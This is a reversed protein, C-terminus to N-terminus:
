GSTGDERWHTGDERWHGADPDSWRIRRRHVRQRLTGRKAPEGPKGFGWERLRWEDWVCAGLQVKQGAQLPGDGEPDLFRFWWDDDEVAYGPAVVSRLPRVHGAYEPERPPGAAYEYLPNWYGPVERVESYFLWSQFDNARYLPLLSDVPPAPDRLVHDHLAALGRSLLQGANEFPIEAALRVVKPELLRRLWHSVTMMAAYDYLTPLAYFFKDPDSWMDTERSAAGCGYVQAFIWLRYFATMIRETETETPPPEDDGVLQESCFRTTFASVVAHISILRRAVADGGLPLLLPTWTSTRSLPPSHAAAAYRTLFDSRRQDSEFARSEQLYALALADPQPTPDDPACSSMASQLIGSASHAFVLFYTDSATLTACLTSFDMLTLIHYRLEPPLHLFPCRVAPTPASTTTPAPVSLTTSSAQLAM